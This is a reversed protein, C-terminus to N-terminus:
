WSTDACLRDSLVIRFNAVAGADRSINLRQELKRMVEKADLLSPDM